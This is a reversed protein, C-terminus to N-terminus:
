HPHRKGSEHQKVPKEYAAVDEGGPFQGAHEFKGPEVKLHHPDIQLLALILCDSETHTLKLFDIVLFGLDFLLLLVLILEEPGDLNDKVDQNAQGKVRRHICLM